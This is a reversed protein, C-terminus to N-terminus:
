YKLSFKLGNCFVVLWAFGTCALAILTDHVRTWLRCTKVFWSRYANWLALAAGILGIWGLLQLLRLCPDLRGNLITQHAPDGYAYVLIGLWGLAFALDIACVLRVLIGMHDVPRGLDLKLGYHWRVLKVVPWLVLTAIFIVLAVEGLGRVFGVSAYWPAREFIIPPLSSVVLQIQGDSGEKFILKVQGNVHRYVMPAIAQWPSPEDPEGPIPIGAVLLEGSNDAKVTAESLLYLIKTVTTQARRSALYHGSVIRADTAAAIPRIAPPPASPFYRDLFRTWLRDAALFGAGERGFSNYSVFLGLNAEVILRLDSFFFLTGGPHRLSRQGNRVDEGFGLCMGDAQPHMAFQRRHMEIATSPKLIAANGYQGNQLHAIMFRAVDTASSCLAGAPGPGLFEFPQPSGSGAKYGESM